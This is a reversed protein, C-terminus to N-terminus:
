QAVLLTNIFARTSAGFIGTGKQLGVPHLVEAAHAEQFKVLANHTMPGFYDTENGPAGVGRVALLFGNSNLFQQLQRVDDGQMHARLTRQFPYRSKSADPTDPINQSPQRDSFIEITTTAEDHYVIRGDPYITQPRPPPSFPALVINLPPGNGGASSSAPSSSSSETTGFLAFDSFATTTCSVTRAGTDVSCSSLASWSSGDYRYIALSSESIGAIDSATYSLTITLGSAFSSITSTADTLAKLNFVTSGISSFGSPKSASAFFSTAEIQNAQFVASSTSTIFSVPITLTLTGETLTGGSAAAIRSQGTGSISADGTCGTTFFTYDASTASNSTADTSKVQFHYQTCSLLGSMTISHSTVRTAIDVETTSTGYGTTLGFLIQSSGAESTTWTVTAGTATTSSAVSSITPATNDVSFSVTSSTAYNTSSDRAVAFATHAGTSTATSDWSIGYSSTTDESGQRTGDIYFRVGSVAVNDSATASLTVASGGVTASASPATLSVTPVTIDALGGAGYEYAGIDTTGSRTGGRQDVTPVSISSHATANGADIAVSSASLALTQIGNTASNDALSTALNLTSQDGTVDGTASWTKNTSTEVINYGNDTIRGASGSVVYFDNAVSNGTNNALITNKMHLNYGDTVSEFLIGGAGASAVNNAITVNTLKFSNPYYVQLAGGYSNTINGTFTSNTIVTTVFRFVGLAGSPEAYSYAFDTPNTSTATNRHFTSASITITNSQGSYIGGSGYYKGNYTNNAITSTAITLTSNASNKLTIAGAGYYNTTSNFRNHTIVANQITLTGSNTIGGATETATSVGYRITLNKITITKSASVTFVGRDATNESSAAQIYTSSVGQGQITLNKGLTYGTGSADGSEGSNTWDFTGTLDITDGASASTYAKHFTAYPSGSTGAGTTDDGTNSNAYITAASVHSAIAFFGLCSVLFISRWQM